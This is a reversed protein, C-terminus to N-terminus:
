NCRGGPARRARVPGRLPCDAPVLDLVAVDDRRELGGVRDAQDAAPAIMSRAPCACRSRMRSRAHPAEGRHAVRESRVTARNRSRASERETEAFRSVKGAAILVTASHNGRRSRANAVPMKLEPEFTPAIRRAARPASRRPRGPTPLGREENVPTSLAVQSTTRARQDYRGGSSMRLERRASSAYMRLSGGSGASACGTPAAAAGGGSRPRRPRRLEHGIRDPPEKQEPQRLKEVALVTEREGPEPRRQDRDIQDRVDAADAAAPKRAAEDLAAPAHVARALARHEDARQGDHRDHERRM